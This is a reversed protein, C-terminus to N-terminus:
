LVIRRPKIRRYYKTYDVKNSMSAIMHIRDLIPTASLAHRLYLIFRPESQLPYDLFWAINDLYIRDRTNATLLM